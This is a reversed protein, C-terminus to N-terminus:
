FKQNKSVFTFLSCLYLIEEFIQLIPVNLVLLLKTYKINKKLFKYLVDLGFPLDIYFKKKFCDRASILYRTM